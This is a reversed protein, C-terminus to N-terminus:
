LKRFPEINRVLILATSSEKAKNNLSFSQSEFSCLTKVNSGYKKSQAKFFVSLPFM